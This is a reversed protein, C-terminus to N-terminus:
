NNRVMDYVSYFSQMDELASDQSESRTDLQKRAQENKSKVEVLRSYLKQVETNSYMTRIESLLQLAEDLRGYSALLLASNYGSPLHRDNDWASRFLEFAYRTDGKKAADYGSKVYDLKPKNDMLYISLTRASPAFLTRITPQFSYIMNRFLIDTSTIIPWDANILEDTTYSDSFSKKTVIRDTKTDIVTISYTIFASQSVYYRYRVEKYTKGDKTYTYDYPRSYIYEDVSMSEIKPIMVADIGSKQFESSVNRGLGSLSMITDTNEPLMVKTYYGTSTITSVLKDTAYNAVSRSLSSQISSPAYVWSSQKDITRIWTSGKLYGRFPVTSAIALNRYQSMDVISPEIYTVPISTACSFLMAAMAIILVIWSRKTKM